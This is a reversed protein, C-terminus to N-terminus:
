AIKIQENMFAMAKDFVGPMHLDGLGATSSAAGKSKVLAQPQGAETGDESTAPPSADSPQEVFAQVDSPLKHGVSTLADRVSMANVTKKVRKMVVPLPEAFTLSLLSQIESKSM